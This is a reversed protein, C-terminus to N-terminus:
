LTVRSHESECRILDRSDSLVSRKDVDFRNIISVLKVLIEDDEGWDSAILMYSSLQLVVRITSHSSM